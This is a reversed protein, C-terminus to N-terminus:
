PASHCNKLKKREKEREKHTLKSKDNLVYIPNVGDGSSDSCCGDPLLSGSASPQQETASPSAIVVRREMSLKLQELSENIVAYDDRMNTDKAHKTQLRKCDNLFGCAVDFAERKIELKARILFSLFLMRDLNYIVGADVVVMGTKTLRESFKIIKIEIQELLKEIESELLPNLKDSPLNCLEKWLYNIYVLHTDAIHIEASIVNVMIGSMLDLSSDKENLLLTNNKISDILRWGSESVLECLACVIFDISANAYHANGAWSCDSFNKISYHSAYTAADSHAQAAQELNTTTLCANIAAKMFQIIIELEERTSSSQIYVDLTERCKKYYLSPTARTILLQQLCTDWVNLPSLPKINRSSLPKEPHDSKFNRISLM